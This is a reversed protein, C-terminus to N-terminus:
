APFVASHGENRSFCFPHPSCASTPYNYDQLSGKITRIFNSSNDRSNDIYLLSSFNDESVNSAVGKTSRPRALVMTYQAPTIVLLAGGNYVGIYVAASVERTGGDVM